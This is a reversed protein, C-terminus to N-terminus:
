KNAQQQLISAVQSAGKSLGGFADTAAGEAGAATADSAANDLLSVQSSANAKSVMLDNTGQNLQRTVNAGFGTAAGTAVAGLTGANQSALAKLLNQRMNIQNQTEKLTEATAKQKDANATAQGQQISSYAAVGASAVTGAAAVMEM